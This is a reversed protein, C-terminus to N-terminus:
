IVMVDNNSIGNTMRINLFMCSYFSMALLSDWVSVIDRINTPVLIAM